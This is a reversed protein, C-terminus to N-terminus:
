KINDIYGKVSGIHDEMFYKKADCDPCANLATVALQLLREKKQLEDDYQAIQRCENWHKEELEKSDIHSSMSMSAKECMAAVQCVERATQIAARKARHLHGLAINPDNSKIYAWALNLFRRVDAMAEETEQVEELIVGYAEHLSAFMPFKENAATLEKNVAAIIDERIVDM